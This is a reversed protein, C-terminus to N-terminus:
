ALTAETYVYTFLNSSKHTCRLCPNPSAWNHVTSNANSFMEIFEIFCHRNCKKAWIEVTFGSTLKSPHIVLRDSFVLFKRM